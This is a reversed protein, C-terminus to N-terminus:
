NIDRLIKEITLSILAPTDLLPKYWLIKTITDKTIIIVEWKNTCNFKDGVPYIWYKLLVEEEPPNCTYWIFRNDDLRWTIYNLSHPIHWKM